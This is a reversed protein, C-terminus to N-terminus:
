KKSLFGCNKNETTRASTTAPTWGSVLKMTMMICSADSLWSYELQVLKAAIDKRTDLKDNRAAGYRRSM